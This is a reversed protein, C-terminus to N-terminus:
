IRVLVNGIRADIESIRRAEIREHTEGGFGVSMSTLKQLLVVLLPHRRLLCRRLSRRRELAGAVCFYSPKTEFGATAGKARNPAHEFDSFFTRAERM